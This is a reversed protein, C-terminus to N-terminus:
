WRTATAPARTRRRARFTRAVTAALQLFLRDISNDDHSVCFCVCVCLCLCILLLICCVQHSRFRHITGDEMDMAMVGVCEGNDMILDLAFYEVFFKCDYKLSQGYLTHLLAHGTRDAAACCRHAQGGKGYETSQGGFARQYIKGEDTRSFPVGYHELEIM